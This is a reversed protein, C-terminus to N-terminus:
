HDRIILKKIRQLLSPKSTQEARKKKREAAEYPGVIERPPQTSGSNYIKM